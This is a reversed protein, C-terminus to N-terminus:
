GAAPASGVPVHTVGRMLSPRWATWSRGVALALGPRNRLLVRNAM